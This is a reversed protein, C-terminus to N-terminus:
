LKFRQVGGRIEPTLGFRSCVQLYAEQFNWITQVDNPSPVSIPKSMDISAWGIGDPTNVLLVMEDKVNVGYEQSLKIYFAAVAEDRTIGDRDLALKLGKYTFTKDEEM